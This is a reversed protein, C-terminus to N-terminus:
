KRYATDCHCYLKGKVFSFNWLIWFTVEGM